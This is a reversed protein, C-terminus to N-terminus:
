PAVGIEDRPRPELADREVVRSAPDSALALSVMAEALTPGDISRWRRATRLGMAALAAAAGDLAVAAVREIARSDDRGDGSIFAPRVVLFPIGSERLEREVRGRVRLYANGGRETAGAASLYVFRQVGGSAVAARLLLVTLGYDVAEYSDAVASSRAADRARARTTGLLGFVHTPGERALTRTMASEEWSTTDVRAGLAAFRARWVEVSRSDPRVHAVTEVGRERLARVVERGTYGTAGAVFARAARPRGASATNM